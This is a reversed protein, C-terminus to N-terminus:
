DMGVVVEWLPPNKGYGMPTGESTRRPIVMAVVAAMGVVAGQSAFVLKIEAEVRGRIAMVGSATDRGMLLSILM